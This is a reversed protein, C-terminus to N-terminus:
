VGKIFLLYVIINWPLEVKQPILNFKKEMYLIDACINPNRIKKWPLIDAGIIIKV